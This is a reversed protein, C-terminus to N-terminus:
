PNNSEKKKWMHLNSNHPLTDVAANLAFKMQEQPHSQIAKAWTTATDPTTARLMEGQRELSKVQDLRAVNDSNNVRGKAASLLAKRSTDPDEVMADRVVVAPKFKKRTQLAEAQLQKEAIHRVCPDPSTLFQCQRSVQLRKYLSSLAPLNLGGM